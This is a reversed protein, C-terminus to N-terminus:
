GTLSGYRVPDCASPDVGDNHQHSRNHQAIPRKDASVDDVVGAGEQTTTGALSRAQSLEGARRQHGFTGQV